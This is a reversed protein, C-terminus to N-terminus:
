VVEPNRQERTVWLVDISKAGTWARGEGLSLEVDVNTPINCQRKIDELTLTVKHRTVIVAFAAAERQAAALEERAKELATM